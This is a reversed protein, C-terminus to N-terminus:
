SDKLMPIYCFTRYKSSNNLHENEVRLIAWQARRYIEFASLLTVSLHGGAIHAVESVQGLM